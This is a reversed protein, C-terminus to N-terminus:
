PAVVQVPTDLILRGDPAPRGQDDRVPLRSGDLADYMGVVVRYAGPAADAPLPLTYTDEVVQGHVWNETPWLGGQPWTDVQAVVGDASDLLHVFFTYSALVEEGAQLALKLRLPDGVHVQAPLPESLFVDFTGVSGAHIAGAPLAFARDRHTIDIPAVDLSEDGIALRLRYRGEPLDLPLRVAYRVSVIDGNWLAAGANPALPTRWDFSRPRTDAVIDPELSWRVETAPDLEERLSRWHLTSFFQDGAAPVYTLLDMGILEVQGSWVHELRQRASITDPEFIKPGPAIHLSALMPATGSFAGSASVLGARQRDPADIGFRLTYTGPALSPPVQVSFVQEAVEGPQWDIPAFDHSNRLPGGFRTWGDGFADTLELTVSYNATPRAIVWWRAAVDIRDPYAVSGALPQLGILALAGDFQVIFPDLPITARRDPQFVHVIAGAVATNSVRRMNTELWNRTNSRVIPSAAETSVYVLRPHDRLEDLTTSILDPTADLPLVTVSRPDLLRLLPTAADLLIADDPQAAQRIWDAQAAPRTTAVVWAADIGGIRIAQALTGMEGLSQFFEPALQTESVTFIIYDASALGASDLTVSPGNFLPAINSLGGSAIVAHPDREAVWAAAAGFGEGWGVAIRDRAGAAGGLLPNYAMLLYPALSLTLMAQLAIAAFPLLHALQTLPRRTLRDISWAAAVILPPIIPLLYRDFKKALPSLFAIFAVAFFTLALIAFRTDDVALSEPQPRKAHSHPPRTRFAVAPIAAMLGMVVIPSLRYALALPYFGLGHNLEAQGDFFTPRTATAAHHSARELMLDLAASPDSWMAPYAFIFFASHLILFVLFGLLAHRISIRRTLVAVLFIILTFPILFLAPSKSLLALGAMAGSFAFWRFASSPILVTSHPICFPSRPTAAPSEPHVIPSLRYAIPSVRNAIRSLGNLLALVSLMSFTALLGDVHLVGDLGAVFPDLALLCSALLAVRHGLVRRTLLFVGAVGLANVVVVPLRAWDLFVGIRKFAAVNEPSLRDIKSLWSLADAARAPDLAREVAIGLSGLWMTTVGPHGAQATTAWDGRALAASFNLTRYVWNPEDPTVYRALAFARPAIALVFLVVTWRWGPLQFGSNKM